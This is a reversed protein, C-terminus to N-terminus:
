IIVEHTVSGIMTATDILAREPNIPKANKGHKKGKKAREAKMKITTASNLRPDDPPWDAITRKMDGEMAQACVEYANKVSTKDFRGARKIGHAILRAYKEENDKLTRHMFPRRPIGNAGTENAIAVTAVYTGDSYKANSFFGARAQARIAAIKRLYDNLHGNAKISKVELM